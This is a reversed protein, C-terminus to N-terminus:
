GPIGSCSQLRCGLHDHESQITKIGFYDPRHDIGATSGVELAVMAMAPM